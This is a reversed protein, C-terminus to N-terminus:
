MGSNADFPLSTMVTSCTMSWWLPNGEAGSPGGFHAVVSPRRSAKPLHRSWHSGPVFNSYWGDLALAVQASPLLGEDVERRARAVLREISATDITRAM